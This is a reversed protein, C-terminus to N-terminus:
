LDPLTTQGCLTHRLMHTTRPEISLIGFLFSMLDGWRVRGWMISAKYRGSLGGIVSYYRCGMNWITKLAIRSKMM